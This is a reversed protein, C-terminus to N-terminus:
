YIDEAKKLIVKFTRPVAEDPRFFDYDSRTLGPRGSTNKDLNSYDLGYRRMATSHEIGTFEGLSDASTKLAKEKSALDDGWAIYIESNELAADSIAESKPYKKAM